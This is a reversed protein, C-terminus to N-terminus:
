SFLKKEIDKWVMDVTIDKMCKFHKEPCTKGGHLSCPRCYLSVEIVTSQEGRPSFGLCKVTPGFIATVPTHQSWAIHMPGSDNTLYCNLKKIFAAVETLKLIGCLNHLLPHGQMGSLTIIKNSLQEEGPGGFILVHINKKIAKYIITSFREPLWRKTPWVSGPNIGLVPGSIHKKWFSDAQQYAEQPLFINPWTQFDSKKIPLDSLLDLLREIEDLSGLKRKILQTCCLPQLINVSYGIRLKSKSFLTIISSRLSTHANIWLDYNQKKIYQILKVTTKISSQQKNYEIVNKINPHSSFLSGFGKRIYFDVSAEPFATALTQVLPLTLVTDGLFATNWVAINKM